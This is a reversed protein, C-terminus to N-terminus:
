NPPIFMTYRLWSSFSIFTCIIKRKVQKVFFISFVVLSLEDALVTFIVSEGPQYGVDTVSTLRVQLTLNLTQACAVRHTCIAKQYLFIVKPITRQVSFSEYLM